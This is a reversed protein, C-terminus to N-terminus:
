CPEADDLHAKIVASQHDMDPIRRHQQFCNTLPKHTVYDLTSQKKDIWKTMKQREQGGPTMSRKTRPYGSKYKLCEQAACLLKTKSNSHQMGLVLQLDCTVKQSERESLETMTM